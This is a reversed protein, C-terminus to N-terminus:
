RSLVAENKNICGAIPEYIWQRDRKSRRVLRLRYLDYLRNNWGTTSIRSKVHERLDSASAQELEELATLTELLHEDPTGWLNAKAVKDDEIELAELCYLKRASFVENIGEQLEENLGYVMPFIHYDPEGVVGTGTPQVGAKFYLSLATAKLYSSTASLLGEFSLVVVQGPSEDFGGSDIRHLLPAIHREGLTAGALHEWEQCADKLSYFIM